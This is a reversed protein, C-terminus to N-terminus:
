QKAVAPKKGESVPSASAGRPSASPTNDNVAAAAGALAPGVNDNAAESDEVRQKKPEQEGQSTRSRKMSVDLSGAVDVPKPLSM